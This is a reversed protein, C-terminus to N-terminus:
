IGREVNDLNWETLTREREKLEYELYNRIEKVEKSSLYIESSLTMSTITRNRKDLFWSVPINACGYSIYSRDESLKGNYGEIYPLKPKIVEEWKGNSFIINDGFTLTNEKIDYVFMNRHSFGRKEAEKILAKAVETHTAETYKGVWSLRTNSNWEGTSQVGYGHLVRSDETCHVVATVNEHIYWKGKEYIHEEKYIPKWYEPYNRVLHESYNVGFFFKDIYSSMINIKTGLKPSNPYEKILEYAIIEKM